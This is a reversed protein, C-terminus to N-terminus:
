FNVSLGLNYNKSLPYTYGANFAGEVREPDFQKMFPDKAFTVLNFGNMYVRLREMGLRSLMDSNFTYGFEMSKLRVFSSNRRWVSSEAYLMGVDGNFRTAPWEGAIWESDLNYPDEQHWRDFFYAPLNGRFAFMEGYVESFRMTYGGAGQFHLNLDFGKWQAGFTAGFNVLPTAGYNLPTRADEENIIGDNNVDEYMFDGPLERMGGLAGGYVPGNWVEEQSQFQGTVIYGIQRNGWRNEEGHLWRDRQSQFPAREQYLTMYRSFNFNGRVTYQFDNISNTHGLSFEFGVQRSSNLNEEPLTGGFTNPLSITRRALQGRRERNYVDAIIELKGNWMTLDFGIDSLHNTSWTLLRNTIEPSALGNTLNNNSFEWTSVGGFTFGPLYQFPAGEDSGIVGYSGRIKLENIAPANNLIFNEESIRWGASVVPFFGFRREPHYRFSGNYNFAAEILYKQSFAYNVRGIYSIRSNVDDQGDNQLNTQGAFRIQDSTYFDGYYRRASQWRSWGKIQEAVLTGSIDHNQGIKTKYDASLRLTYTNGVDTRASINQDARQILPNYTDTAPTYTYTTFGKYLNKFMINGTDFAGTGTIVLNKVYPVTYRLEAMTQVARNEVETYGSLDRDAIVTPTQFGSSVFGPYLPNDNAFPRETPLTVRTTKFINFFNDGPETQKDYRGSIMLRAQLNDTLDATINSRLNFRSYNMDNSRLLGGDEVYELGLYYLVKEGGGSVSLNHQTQRAYDKMTADYWDVNTYGPLTGEMYRQLEDRTYYPIGAGPGYINADNRMQAFQSTSSMIPIGTPRTIGSVANYTFSTKGRNGQKTTVIIVGNAAGIGYVAASADKLVSISEIDEPNIRQFAGPDNRIIGDIVFMPTGFGRINISNDFSGPQGSNQRINLGAVKGQLKQALSSHTTTQIERNDIASVSGTLTAKEAFGYGVVIFEELEKQDTIMAVDIINRGDIIETVTEMGLFIFVLQTANAPVNISYAGNIDTITGGVRAGNSNLVVNVGPLTTGDASDTVTGRIIGDQASLFLPCILLITLLYIAKM